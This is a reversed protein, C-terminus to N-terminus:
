IKYIVIFSKIENPTQDKKISSIISAFLPSGFLLKSRPGKSIIKLSENIEKIEKPTLTSEKLLYSMKESDKIFSEANDSLLNAYEILNMENKKCKLLVRYFEM